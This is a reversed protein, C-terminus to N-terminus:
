PPTAAAHHDEAVLVRVLHAQEVHREQLDLPIPERAQEAQASRGGRLEGGLDAHEAGHRRQGAADIGDRKGRVLHREVQGAHGEHHREPRADAPATRTPCAM